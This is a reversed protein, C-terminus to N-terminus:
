NFASIRGNLKSAIKFSGEGEAVEVITLLTDDDFQMFQTELGIDFVHFEFDSQKNQSSEDLKKAM